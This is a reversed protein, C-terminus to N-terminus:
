AVLGVYVMSDCIECFDYKNVLIKVIVIKGVDTQVFKMVGIIAIV